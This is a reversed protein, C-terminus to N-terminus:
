PTRWMRLGYTASIAIDAPLVGLGIGANAGIGQPWGTDSFAADWGGSFVQTPPGGAASVGFGWGEFADLTVAPYFQVGISDGLSVNSIVQPGIAVYVGVKGRYDTAVVYGAQLGVVAGLSATLTYAMHFHGQYNALVPKLLGELERLKRQLADPACLTEPAFMAMVTSKAKQVESAVKAIAPGHPALPNVFPGVREMVLAKGLRNSRAKAEDGYQALGPPLKGARLAGLTARCVEARLLSSDEVCKNSIPNEILGANCSPIRETLLCPRGDRAGCAESVCAQASKVSQVTRKPASAPCTWCSGGDVPDFFGASCVLSGEARTAKSYRDPQDKWCVGSQNGSKVHDHTYGSPCSYCTKNHLSLWQGRPCDTGLLGTGKAHRTGERNSRGGEDKCVKPDTPPKLLDDHKYGSPCKWCEGKIDPFGGECGISALPKASGVKAARAYTDSWAAAPLALAVVAALAQAAAALRIRLM